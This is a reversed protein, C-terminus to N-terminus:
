HFMTLWHFLIVSIYKNNNIHIIVIYQVAYYEVAYYSQYSDMNM